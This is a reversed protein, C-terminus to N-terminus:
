TKEFHELRALLVSIRYKADPAILTGVAIAAALVAVCVVLVTADLWELPEVGGSEHRLLPGAVYGAIVGAPLWFQLGRALKLNRRAAELAHKLGDLPSLRAIAPRSRRLRRFSWYQAVAACAVMGFLVGPLKLEGLLEVYLSAALAMVNVAIFVWGLHTESRQEIEVYMLIDETEFAPADSQWVDSLNLESM